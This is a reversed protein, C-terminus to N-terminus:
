QTSRKFNLLIYLILATLMLAAWQFAYGYHRQPPIGLDGWQRVFGSDAQPDLLVIGDAVPRQYLCALLAHSPYNLRQPWSLDTRDCVGDDTALGARPLSRWYGRVRVQDGPLTGTKPLQERRLPAAIWGRNVLIVQDSDMLQLPTWVEVGVRKNHTKNDLLVEQAALWRGQLEVRQGHEPLQRARAVVTVAASQSGQRAIIDAKQQGRQMQWSSLSGFLVVALTTVVTAWLPPRFRM